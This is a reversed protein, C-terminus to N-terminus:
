APLRAIDTASELVILIGAWLILAAIGFLYPLATVFGTQVNSLGFRKVIQPLFLVLGYGTPAVDLEEGGVDVVRVRAPGIGSGARV